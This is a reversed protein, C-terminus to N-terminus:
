AAYRGAAYRGARLAGKSKKQFKLDANQKFFM